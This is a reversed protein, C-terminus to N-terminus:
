RHFWRRLFSEEDSSRDLDVSADVTGDVSSPIPKAPPRQFPLATAPRPSTGPYSSSDGNVKERPRPRPLGPKAVEDLTEDVSDISPIPSRPREPIFGVEHFVVKAPGIRVADGDGLHHRGAIRQKNVYVGNHSNLDEIAWGGEHSDRVIQCHRRSVGPDNLWVDCDMARGFVVASKLEVRTPEGDSTRIVLYAM